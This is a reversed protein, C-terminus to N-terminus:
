GKRVRNGAKGAEETDRREDGQKPVLTQFQSMDTGDPPAGQDGHITPPLRAKATASQEKTAKSARAARTLNDRTRAVFEYNYAATADGPARKLVEGYLDLASELRRISQPDNSFKSAKYFGNAEILLMAPDTEAIGGNVDRPIELSQYNSSWFESVARQQRADLGLTAMWPLRAAYATSEQVKEFEQDPAGPQLTLLQKQAETLRQELHGSTWLAAGAAVFAAALVIYGVVARM